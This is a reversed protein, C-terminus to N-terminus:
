SVVVGNSPAPTPPPKLALPLSSWHKPRVDTAIATMSGGLDPEDFHAVNARAPLEALLEVLHLENRAQLCVINREGLHWSRHLEPHKTAFESVAHCAQALQLGAPIDARVIVYLREM